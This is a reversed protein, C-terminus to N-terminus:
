SLLNRIYEEIDGIKLHRSITSRGVNLVRAWEGINKTTGDVTIHKTTRLNDSQEKRTAWRCNSPEYNGNTEMRDLTLIDTYGNAIAWKYFPEFEMWESCVTIGRGGYYMYERKNPNFCRDIMGHWIRYLRTKASM